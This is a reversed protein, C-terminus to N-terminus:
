SVLVIKRKGCPGQKHPYVVECRCGTGLAATGTQPLRDLDIEYDHKSSASVPLDGTMGCFQIFWSAFGCPSPGLPRESGWQHVCGKRMRRYGPSNRTVSGRWMAFPAHIFGGWSQLLPTQFCGEDPDIKGLEPIALHLPIGRGQSHCLPSDFIHTKFSIASLGCGLAINGSIFLWQGM